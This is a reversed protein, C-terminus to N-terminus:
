IITSTTTAVVEVFRYYMFEGPQRQGALWVKNNQIRRSVAGEKETGTDTVIEYEDPIREFLTQRRGL